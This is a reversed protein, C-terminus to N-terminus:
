AWRGLAVRRAVQIREIALHLREFDERAVPRGHELDGAIVAIVLVEDAVAKLVDAAPFAQRVRSANEAWRPPFLADFELGVAALIEAVSCGAFDHVLVRGDELERISLSASKDAHGPCRALWRGEGTRRAGHLCNLLAAASM